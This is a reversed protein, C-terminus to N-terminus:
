DRVTIAISASREASTVDGFHLMAVEPQVTFRKSHAYGGLDKCSLTLTLPPWGDFAGMDFLHRDAVDPGAQMAQTERKARVNLSLLLLHVYASPFPIGSSVDPMIAPLRGRLQNALNHTTARKASDSLRLLRSADYEASEVATADVSGISELFHQLDTEWSYTVNKAPGFGANRATLSLHTWTNKAPRKGDIAITGFHDTGDPYIGFGTSDVILDPKYTTRRQWRMELVTLFTAIAALLTGITALLTLTEQSM